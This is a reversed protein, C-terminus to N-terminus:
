YKSVRFTTKPTKFIFTLEHKPNSDLLLFFEYDYNNYKSYWDVSSFLKFSTLMNKWEYMIPEYNYDNYTDLKSIFYLWILINEVM